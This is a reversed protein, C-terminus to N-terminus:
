TSARGLPRKLAARDLIKDYLVVGVVHQSRELRLSFRNLPRLFLAVVRVNSPDSM